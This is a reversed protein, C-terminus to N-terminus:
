GKYLADADLVGIVKGNCRITDGIPIPAYQPNISILVGDGLRKVYGQGDLTFIGIDGIEPSESSVLLIDGDYYTPEMSDGTVPVAYAAQRVLEDEKVYITEFCEPGLYTGTGAAAPQESLRLPVIKQPNNQVTSHCEQIRKKEESLVVRLMTKGYRDLSDFDKAIQLAENSFDVKIDNYEIPELDTPAYLSSITIGLAACIRPVMDVDPSNNGRIWNNVTGKSICLKDALSVQTLGAKKMSTVLNIRIRERLSITQSEEM